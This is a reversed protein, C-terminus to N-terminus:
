GGGGLVLEVGVPKVVGTVERIRVKTAKSALSAGRIVSQRDTNSACRPRTHETLSRTLGQRGDSAPAAEEWRVLLALGGLVVIAVIAVVVFKAVRGCLSVKMARSLM